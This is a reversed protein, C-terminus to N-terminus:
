RGAKCAWTLDRSADWRLFLCHESRPFRILTRLILIFYNFFPTTANKAVVGNKDNSGYPRLIKGKFLRKPKARRRPEPVYM